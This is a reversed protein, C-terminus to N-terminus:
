CTFPEQQWAQHDSNWTHMMSCTIIVLLLFLLYNLFFVINSLRSTLQQGTMTRGPEERPPDTYPPPPSRSLLASPQDSSSAPETTLACSYPTSYHSSQFNQKPLKGHFNRNSPVKLFHQELGWTTTCIQFRLM